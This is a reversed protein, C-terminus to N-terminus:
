LKYHKLMMKEYIKDPLVSKLVLSFRQMFTGVTYHVKPNKANIIRHVKHAVRIPDDGLEVGANIQELTKTYPGAYPSNEQIPAHYRGSAINTSFDGPALDTIHIGFTKTEMRLAETVMHMASKTASYIGRYPLGMYGAISTINIILGTTQARMIPLVAKILNLPGNFNTDFVKAIEDSPTEEIPGTIGIGANNILVDVRGAKSMIESLANEVSPIHTVDMQLLTFGKFSPHNELSRTTGFVQYGKATLYLGIAKGIGSSGGTILVVKNKM